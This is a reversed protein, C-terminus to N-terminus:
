KLAAKISDKLATGDPELTLATKFQENAKDKQGDAVYSMGLHYRAAALNPTKSVVGEL